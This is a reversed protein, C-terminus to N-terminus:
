ATRERKGFELAALVSDWKHVPQRNGLSTLGLVETIRNSNLCQCCCSGYHGDGLCGASACPLHVVLRGGQNSIAAGNLPAVKM